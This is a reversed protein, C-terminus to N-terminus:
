RRSRRSLRNRIRGVMSDMTKIERVRLLKCLLYFVVLGAVGCLLISLLSTFITTSEPTLLSVGYAACAALLAACGIKVIDKVIADIGFPGVKHQLVMCLVVFFVAYFVADAIPIGILGLGGWTGIGTTLLAYLLAQGIRGAADIKTVLGLDKLSSFARYLYMYGAYFPLAICWYSLIHAVALVDDYTFKGAHYLGALPESLVFMLAAMPIILFLTNRLGSRINRRFAIWNHAASAESMETFMATSLAVGIVGYPLQYWMWAYSITAPGNEAVSLSFANRVSVVILNVLIFVTAPLALRITERLAPDKLDIRFRLPIKLKLLSPIQIAFMAVVGLTTGIALWIKAFEPDSAVLTPYSFMTIVVVINNFVPGLAPWLFSRHANLLGSIIAGMGYFVIQIAFFRFFYVTMEADLGGTMFTQTAIVQPAFVTALLAVAGLVICGISLLNSVYAASGNRSQKKVQALYVPLFATTLVGGAVLEYLMNPLNNAIQYASMFMTNGLAFACAWTRLFGTVRSLLTALSMTMTSKAVSTKVQQPDHRPGDEHDTETRAFPPM